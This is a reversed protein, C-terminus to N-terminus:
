GNSRKRKVSRILKKEQKHINNKTQEPEKKYANRQPLIKRQSPRKVNKM